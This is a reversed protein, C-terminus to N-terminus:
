RDARSFEALWRRMAPKRPDPLRDVRVATLGDAAFADVESRALPWPPGSPQDAPEATRAPDGAFAIVVLTGGPAVLGAVNAIAQPRPPDPMAQVTFVEVVLDFARAWDGPPRLLDATRYQVVSGPHRGSALKVATEAVDFATTDFGLGAVFEADAGLGCGVVVARQGHGAPQRQDAWQRLLPHPESRDWPMPVVGDNAEAYLREFWGTPDGGARAGAALQDAREDWDDTLM